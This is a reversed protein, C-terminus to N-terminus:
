HPIFLKRQPVMEIQDDNKVANGSRRTEGNKGEIIIEKSSVLHGLVEKYLDLNAPTENCTEAFFKDFRVGDDYLSIREPMEELLSQVTRNQADTDFMFEMELQGSLTPDNNPDYGLMNFGPKGYHEFHNHREWHLTTMEDQARAHMSLHILWYARNSERSVIFFPTFFRAGSGQHIGQTLQSQILFRWDRDAHKSSILSDFDVYEILGTRTLTAKLNKYSEEGLYNILSDSAFNLIVEANELASFIHHLSGLPVQSYGYQDLLFFCRAQKGRRRITQVIDPLQSDFNGKIVHISKGVEHQFESESLTHKLFAVCEPEKEIFIFEPFIKFAKRIGQEKRKANVLAEAERITRLLILPSGDVPNGTEHHTYQGGGAFGDVLTLNLLEIRPNATLIQVYNTLYTRLVVHKELSHAAIIPPRNGIEWDYGKRPM